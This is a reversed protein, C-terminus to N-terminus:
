YSKGDVAVIKLESRDLDPLCRLNVAAVGNGKPDTGFCFPSCGCKECFHHRIAHKNFTYVGLERETPSKLTFASRPMFSLLYGKRSCHSCNCEMAETLTAEIEFSVSGCHCSGQYLM